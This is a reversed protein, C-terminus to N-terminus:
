SALDLRGFLGDEESSPGAAFFLQNHKGAGNDNGFTLSWLQDIQLPAGHKDTAQGLWQGNEPDFVNVYGDRFNGVLLKNSFAGFDSPALAMGWPSNLRGNSVLRKQFEGETTFVDIYGHGVAGVDNQKDISQEAYTVYISGNMAKIGFPAYNSPMNPDVFKGPLTVPQYHSDFVDVTNLAFDAAYLRPGQPTDASTLGKYVAGKGSNDVRMVANLKMSDNWGAITGQESSFVFADGSFERKASFVMGTLPAAVDGDPDNPVPVKVALPVQKGGDDIMVVKGSGDYVTSYGSSNNVWVRGPDGFEMGWADTMKGDRHTAVADVNSVLAVMNLAFRTNGIDGQSSASSTQDATTTSPGGCGTLLATGTMLLALCSILRCCHPPRVLSKM